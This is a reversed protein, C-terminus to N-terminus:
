FVVVYLMIYGIKDEFTNSKEIHFLCVNPHEFDVILVFKSIHQCNVIFASSRRWIITLVSMRLVSCSEYSIRTNFNSVKFLNNRAPVFSIVFLAEWFLIM